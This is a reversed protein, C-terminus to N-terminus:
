KSNQECLVVPALPVSNGPPPSLSGFLLPSHIRAVCSAHARKDCGRVGCQCLKMMGSAAKSCLSCVASKPVSNPVDRAPTLPPISFAKRNDPAKTNSLMDHYPITTPLLSTADKLRRELNAIRNKLQAIQKECSNKESEHRQVDEEHSTAKVRLNQAEREAKGLAEHLREQEKRSKGQIESMREHLSSNENQLDEITDKLVSETAVTEAATSAAETLMARAERLEQEVMTSRDKRAQEVAEREEVEKRIRNLNELSASLESELRKREEDASKGHRRLRVQEDLLQKQDKQSRAFETERQLLKAEVSRAAQSILEHEQYLTESVRKTEEVVSRLSELQSALSVAYSEAADADCRANAANQGAIRLAETVREMRDASATTSERLANNAARMAATDAEAEQLKQHLVSFNVLLALRVNDTCCSVFCYFTVECMVRVKQLIMCESTKEMALDAAHNGIEMVRSRKAPEENDLDDLLPRKQSEAGHHECSVLQLAEEVFSKLRSGKRVFDDWANNGFPPHAHLMDTMTPPGHATQLSQNTITNARNDAENRLGPPSSIKSLNCEEEDSSSDDQDPLKMVNHPGNADRFAATSASPSETTNM